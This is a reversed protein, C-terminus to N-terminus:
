IGLIQEPVCYHNSAGYTPPYALDTCADHFRLKTADPTEDPNIHFVVRAAGSNTWVAAYLAPLTHIYYPDNYVPHFARGYFEDVLFIISGKQYDTAWSPKTTDSIPRYTIKLATFNTMPQSLTVQQAAFAVSPNSNTWLM